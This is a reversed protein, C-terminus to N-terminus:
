LGNTVKKNWRQVGANIVLRFDNGDQSYRWAPTMSLGREYKDCLEQYETLFKADMEEPTLENSSM